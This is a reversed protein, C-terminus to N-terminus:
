VPRAHGRGGPSRVQVPRRRTLSCGGAVYWGHRDQAGSGVGAIGGGYGRDDVTPAAHAVSDPRGLAGAAGPSPVPVLHAVGARRFEQIAEVETQYRGVASGDVVQPGEHDGRAGPEVIGTRVRDDQLEGVPKQLGLCTRKNGVQGADDVADDQGCAISETGRSAGTQQILHSDPAPGHTRQAPAPAPKGPRRRGRAARLSPGTSNFSTFVDVRQQGGFM